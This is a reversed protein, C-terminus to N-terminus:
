WVLLVSWSLCVSLVRIGPNGSIGLNSQNGPIGPSLASNWLEPPNECNWRFIDIEQLGSINPISPIGQILVTECNKRHKNDFLINVVRKDQRSYNDPKTQKPRSRTSFMDTALDQASWYFSFPSISTWVLLCFLVKDVQWYISFFSWGCFVVEEM